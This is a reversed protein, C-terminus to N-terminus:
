RMRVGRRGPCRNGYGDQHKRLTTTTNKYRHFERGCYQCQIVARIPRDTRVPTHYSGARSAFTGVGSTSGKALENEYRPRFTEELVDVSQIGDPKLSKIGPGSRQGGTRDYVYLYESVNGMRTRKTVLSYPEAIRAVGSYVIRLLRNESGAHLLQSRMPELIYGQAYQPQPAIGSFLGDLGTRLV